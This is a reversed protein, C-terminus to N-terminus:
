KAPLYSRLTKLLSAWGSPCCKMTIRAPSHRAAASASRLGRANRREPRSITITAVGAAVDYGLDTYGM